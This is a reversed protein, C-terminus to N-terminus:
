SKRKRKHKVEQKEKRVHLWFLICGLVICFMIVLVVFPTIFSYFEPSVLASIMASFSLYLIVLAMFNVLEIVQCPVFKGVLSFVEIAFIGLILILASVITLSLFIKYYLHRQLSDMASDKLDNIFDSWRSIEENDLNEKVNEFEMEASEALGNDYKYDDWYQRELTSAPIILVVATMLLALTIQIQLQANNEM